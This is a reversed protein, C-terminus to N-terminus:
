RVKRRMYIKIQDALYPARILIIATALTLVTAILFWGRSSRWETPNKFHIPTTRGTEIVEGGTRDALDDFAAYDNGIEDFERPYRSPITVRKIPQGAIAIQAVSPATDRTLEAQYRGPAIQTFPMTTDGRQLTLSLQNLPHDKDIADVIIQDHLTDTVVSFRPDAPTHQLRATLQELSSRDMTAAVSVVKGLGAQWSAVIPDGDAAAIVDAKSRAFARYHRTTALTLDSLVGATTIASAAQVDDGRATQLLKQLAKAWASPDVESVLSGGTQDCLTQLASKPPVDTTALLHVSVKAQQLSQILPDVAAITADADSVLLLRTPRAFSREALSKLASELGTPGAPARVRLKELQTIADAPSLRDAVVDITRSFIALSVREAENLNSAAAISATIARNWRSMEGGVAMSGSADLLIMWDSDPVPPVASLPAIARVIAPYDVPSGHLILVGGLDRVYQTLLTQQQISIELKADLVIAPPSLYAASDLPLQDVRDVFWASSAKQPMVLMAISDNEPWPDAPNLVVNIQPAAPTLRMTTRGAAIPIRTGDPTREIWRANSHADVTAALESGVQTIQMIRGDAPDHLAPDIVPYVPPLTPPVDFRGDTFLIIMDGSSGPMHTRSADSETAASVEGDAFYRITAKKGPLLQSLRAQLSQADHFTAGRTSPSVDVWAVISMERDCRFQMGAIALLLLGAAIRILMRGAPELRGARWFILAIVPLIILAIIPSEVQM